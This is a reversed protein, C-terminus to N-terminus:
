ETRLGSCTSDMVRGTQVRGAPLRDPLLKSANMIFDAYVTERKTAERAVRQLGDQNRQTYVAAILSACGGILAGVLASIASLVPPDLHM